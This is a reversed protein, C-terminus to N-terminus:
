FFDIQKLFEEIKSIVLKKCDLFATNHGGIIEVFEGSDAKEFLKKGLVFPVIEDNKSHFFLKPSKVNKIKAYSDFRVTYIFTPLLPYIRKAMDRASTFGGEIIIGSIPKKSALDVAVASGLSEGFVVIKEQRIKKNGVLYDYAAEADRYLGKETPRGGSKGYGRYDFIFVNLNLDYFIKIKELRHSINGGNGHCFILTARPANVPIFWASLKINDKTEFIIDEYSLSIDQPTAEIEALPFYVSRREFYRFYFFLFIVLLILYCIPKM